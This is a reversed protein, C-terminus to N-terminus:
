AGRRRDTWPAGILARAADVVEETRCPRRLFSLCPVLALAGRGRLEEERAVVLVAPPRTLRALAGIMSAIAPEGLSGSLVVLDYVREFARRRGEAPDAVRNLYYGSEELALSMSPGWFEDRDVILIKRL